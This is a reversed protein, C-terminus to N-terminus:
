AGDLLTDTRALAALRMAAYDDIAAHHEARIQAGLEADLARGTAALASNLNCGADLVALERQAQADKPAAQSRLDDPGSTAHGAAAVCASWIRVAALYRPDTVVKPRIAASLNATIASARFWRAFDGYLRAQAQALCGDRNQGIVHGTPVTVSLRHRSSGYIAATYAAQRPPPLGAVYQANPNDRQAEALAALTEFGYGYVRAYDIDDIGYPFDPPGAARTPAVVFNFGQASM